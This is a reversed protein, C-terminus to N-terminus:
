EGLQHPRPIRTGSPCGNRILGTPMYSTSDFRYKETHGADDGHFM